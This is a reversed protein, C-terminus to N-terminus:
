IQYVSKHYENFHVTNDTTITVTNNFDNIMMMKMMFM